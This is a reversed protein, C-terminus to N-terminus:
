AFPYIVLDALGDAPAFGVEVQHDILGRGKLGLAVQHIAKPYVADDVMQAGLTKHIHLDDAERPQHGADQGKGAAGTKAGQVIVPPLHQDGPAKTFFFFLQGMVFFADAAGAKEGVDGM